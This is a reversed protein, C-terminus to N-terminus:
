NKHFRKGIMQGPAASFEEAIARSTATNIKKIVPRANAAKHTSPVSDDDTRSGDM